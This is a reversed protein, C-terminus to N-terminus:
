ELGAARKAERYRRKLEEDSVIERSRTSTEEEWPFRMVDEASLISKSYPQLMCLCAMRLREWESRQESERWEHWSQWAAQFESPTCRCFDNLSMGM